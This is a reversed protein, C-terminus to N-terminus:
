TSLRWPDSFLDMLGYRCMDPGHDNHKLPQEKGNEVKKPDWSYNVMERQVNPTRDKHFKLKRRSLVACVRQIGIDVSNNADVVWLGRRQLEAKLSAASPDVVIKPGLSCNSEKIFKELADAHESDTRQYHELVSDYYLENDCYVVDGSDIFDGACFPNVTGYDVAIIHSIYGGTGYLSVPRTSNDYLSETEHWSDKFIAGEAAVWLGDIYRLKYVGTQSARIADKAEKTINPNDDLVFHIRELDKQIAPADLFETKLYSFPSGPNTTIVLRAGEPSLRMLLQSFFSKPAEVAEDVIALGITSGLIQKYSAEDKAGIIWYQKGLIWCEGSAMNYSYQSRGVIQEIDLLINRHVTQKTSGCIIRKGEVQYQSYQAIIKADVAMTKSSRVAGELCTYRKDQSPPRMIFNWAKSGFPKVLTNAM